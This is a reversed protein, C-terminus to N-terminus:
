RPTAKLRQLLPRPLLFKFLLKLGVVSLIQHRNWRSFYWRAADKRLGLSVAQSIAVASTNRLHQSVVPRASHAECREVGLRFTRYAADDSAGSNSVSEESVRYASTFENVFYFQREGAAEALFVGFFFDCAGRGMEGARLYGVAKALDARVLYGDNPFQQILAAELASVQTGAFTRTRCYDHNMKEAGPFDYVGSADTLHQKGYAAAVRPDAFPQTLLDLANPEFKDDDHLVSILEGRAAQILKHVNAAQGLGPQNRCYRIPVPCNRLMSEVVERTREDPSDDGILIEHPLADQELCSAIAVRLFEPREYTPVCISISKEM